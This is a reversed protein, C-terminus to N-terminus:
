NAEDEEEKGFTLDIATFSIIVTNFCQPCVYIRENELVKTLKYKAGCKTCHRNNYERKQRDLDERDEKIDKIIDVALIIFLTIAACICLIDTTSM